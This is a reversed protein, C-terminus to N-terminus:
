SALLLSLLEEPTDVVAIAGATTLEERSGYGWTVGICPLGNAAAGEVDHSRDGILVAGQPGVGLRRLAEAVVEHKHRLTGDLEPGVIHEFHGALGFHELIRTAFVHAKSTAVALRVGASELQSLVRDLGEYPENELCGRDAYYERYCDVAAAIGDPAVGLVGFVDQLPPGM